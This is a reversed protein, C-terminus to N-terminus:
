RSEDLRGGASSAVHEDEEGYRTSKERVIGKGQHNAVAVRRLHDQRVVVTGSSCRGTNQFVYVDGLSPSVRADVATAEEVHTM